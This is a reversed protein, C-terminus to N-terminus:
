RRGPRSATRTRPGPCARGTPSPRRRCARSRLRREAEEVHRVLEIRADVRVPRDEAVVGELRAGVRLERVPGAAPDDPDVARGRGSSRPCATECPQTRRWLLSMLKRRQRTETPIGTLITLYLSRRSTCGFRRRRVFSPGLAPGENTRCTDRGSELKARLSELLVDAELESGISSACRRRRCRSRRRTSPRSSWERRVTEGQFKWTLTSEIDGMTKDVIRENVIRELTETKGEVQRGAMNYLGSFRHGGNPLTAVNKVEYLSPWIKPLNAAEDVFGFVAAVPAKITIDKELIPM